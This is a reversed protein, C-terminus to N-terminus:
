YISPVLRKTRAMYNRYADGMASELAAEEIRMRRAMLAVIPVLIVLLSVVNGFCMGIGVVLLLLGAYSPHRIWRYPGSDVVSQGAAVAVDVTFYRGLHLVSWWRLVLGAVMLGVGVWSSVHTAFTASQCFKLAVIAALNSLLLVLLAKGVFGRDAAALGTTARRRTLLLIEGLLWLGFVSMYILALPRGQLLIM